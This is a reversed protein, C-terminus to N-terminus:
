PKGKEEKAPSAEVTVDTLTTLAKDEPEATVDNLAMPRVSEEPQDPVRQSEFKFNLKKDDGFEDACGIVSQQSGASGIRDQLLGASEQERILHPVDLKM